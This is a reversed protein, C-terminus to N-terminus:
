RREDVPRRDDDEVSLAGRPVPGRRHLRRPLPPLRAQIDTSCSCSIRACATRPRDKWTDAPFLSVMDVDVAGPMPSRAARVDSCRRHSGADSRRRHRAVRQHPGDLTSPRRAANGTTDELEVRISRPGDGVGGAGSALAPTASATGSASAASARTAHRRLGRRRTPEHHAPLAPQRADPPADGDRHRAAHRQRGGREARAGAWSRIPFSSRATRSGNRISAATPRSTSTRSSSASSRRPSRPAPSGRM